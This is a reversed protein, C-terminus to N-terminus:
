YVYQSPLYGLHLHLLHKDADQISSVGLTQNWPYNTASKYNKKKRLWVQLQCHVTDIIWYFFIHQLQIFCRLYIRHLFFLTSSCSQVWLPTSPLWSFCWHTLLDSIRVEVYKMDCTTESTGLKVCTQRYLKKKNSTGEKKVRNAILWILECWSVQKLSLKDFSQAGTRSTSGCNVDLETQSSSRM